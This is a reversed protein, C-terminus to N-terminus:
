FRHHFLKKTIEVSVNETIIENCVLKKTEFDYVHIKKIMEPEVKDRIIVEAQIDTPNFKLENDKRIRMVNGKGLIISDFLSEFAEASSRELITKSSQNKNAANTQNFVCDKTWLIQSPVELLCWKEEPFREQVRKFYYSNPHSISWCTGDLIGDNRSADTVLHSIGSQKIESNSTIGIKMIGKLNRIATFHYVSIIGRHNCVERINRHLSTAPVVKMVNMTTSSDLIVVTKPSFNTVPRSSTDSRSSMVPKSNTVQKPTTGISDEENQTNETETNQQLRKNPWLINRLVIVESQIDKEPVWKYAEYIKQFEEFTNASSTFTEFAKMRNKESLIELSKRNLIRRSWLTRDLKGDKIDELIGDVVRNVINRDMSYFEQLLQEDKNSKEVTKSETYEDASEKGKDDEPQIDTSDRLKWYTYRILLWIPLGTAIYYFKNQDVFADGAEVSYIFIGIFGSFFLTMYYNPTFFADLYKM